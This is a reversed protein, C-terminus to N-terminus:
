AEKRKKAKSLDIAAKQEATFWFPVYEGLRMLLLDWTSLFPPLGAENELTTWWGRTALLVKWDYGMAKLDEYLEKPSCMVPKADHWLYSIQCMESTINLARRLEENEDIKARITTRGVKVDPLLNLAYSINSGEIGYNGMEKIHHFETLSPLIGETQSVIITMAMGSPGSKCRLNRVKLENLDTDLQLDDESNRPYMPTKTSQNLFPKADYCHWCSHTIFTFKDTTGKIKDGNKLHKLKVIPVQGAPGANQMTSEKGIHATMMAFNYAGGNLGPADMLLRLKSLGQRMHMTNAGSDGLENKNNMEEVDDTQFETFSDIQSFTPIIMKLAGSKERNWFPTEIEWAKQKRKNMLFNKHEKYWENGAYVTRDTIKWRGTEILDEGGFEAIRKYFNKLHWEQINVETDYTEAASSKSMRSLATLTFFHMLTSKFNNGIGVVGVVAAHGGNLIHEGRTGPLFTGTIIDFCAGVNISIKVPPAATTNPNILLM